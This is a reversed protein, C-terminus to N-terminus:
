DSLFLRKCIIDLRSLHDEVRIILIKLQWSWLMIKLMQYIYNRIYCVHSGVNLAGFLKEQEIISLDLIQHLTCNLNKKKM